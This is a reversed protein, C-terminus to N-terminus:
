KFPIPEATANAVRALNLLAIYDDWTVLIKIPGNHENTRQTELLLM